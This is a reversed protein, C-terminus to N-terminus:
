AAERPRRFHFAEDILWEAVARAEPSRSARSTRILNYGAALQVRHPWVEVLRGQLVDHEVLVGHGIAIGLGATAATLSMETDYFKLNQRSALSGGGCSALWHPWKETRLSDHLWSYGQLDELRELSHGALLSPAAVPVLCDQMLLQTGPWSGDGYHIALDFREKRFDEDWISTVLEIDAEIRADQLLRLRPVLWRAAFSPMAMIKVQPRRGAANELRKIGFALEDLAKTATELYLAGEATLHVNRHGRLILTRGLCRELSAVHRSVASQACGLDRAAATFSGSQAVARFARLAAISIELM